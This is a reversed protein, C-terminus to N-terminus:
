SGHDKDVVSPNQPHPEKPWGCTNCVIYGAPDGTIHCADFANCPRPKVDKKKTAVFVPLPCTIDKWTEGDAKVRFVSGDRREIELVIVGGAKSFRVRKIDITQDQQPDPPQWKDSARMM